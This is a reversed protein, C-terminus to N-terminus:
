LIYSYHSDKPFDYTHLFIKFINVEFSMSVLKFPNGMPWMQSLKLLM